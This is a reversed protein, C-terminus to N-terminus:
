DRVLRAAPRCSRPRDDRRCAANGRAPLPIPAIGGGGNGDIPTVSFTINDIAIWWPAGWRIEVGKESTWPGSFTTASALPITTLGFTELIGGMGDLVSVPTDFDRTWAGLDFSLLSLPYGAAPIMRFYASVGTDTPGGWAVETLDSYGSGWWLLPSTPDATNEAHSMDVLPM